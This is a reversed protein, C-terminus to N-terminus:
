IMPEVRKVLQLTFGWPDRLLAMTDGTSMHHIDGILEAGAQVLRDCDAQVDESVLALHLEMPNMSRYDPTPVERNGYIEIMMQGSDDAVFHAFPAQKSERKITFGLNECYWRATSIPDEVNIAVHEIKM